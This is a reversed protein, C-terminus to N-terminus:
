RSRFCCTMCTWCPIFFGSYIAETRSRRDLPRSLLHLELSIIKDIFLFYYFFVGSLYIIVDFGYHFFVSCKPPFVTIKNNFNLVSSM